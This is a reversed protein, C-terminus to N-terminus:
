PWHSVEFNVRSFWFRNNNSLLKAFTGHSTRGKVRAQELRDSFRNLPLVTKNGPNEWMRGQPALSLSLSSLLFSGQSSPQNHSFRLKTLMTSSIWLRTQWLIAVKHSYIMSVYFLWFWPKSELFQLFTNELKKTYFVPFCVLAVYFHKQFPKTQITADYNSISM